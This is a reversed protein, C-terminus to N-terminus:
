FEFKIKYYEQELIESQTIRNDSEQLRTASTKRQPDQVYIVSGAPDRCTKETKIWNTEGLHKPKECGALEM